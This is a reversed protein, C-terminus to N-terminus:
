RRNPGRPSSTDGTAFFPALALLDDVAAGSLPLSLRGAPFRRQRYHGYQPHKRRPTIIDAGILPGNRILDM